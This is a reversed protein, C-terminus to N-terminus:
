SWSREAAMTSMVEWDLAKASKRPSMSRVKASLPAALAFLLSVTLFSMVAM